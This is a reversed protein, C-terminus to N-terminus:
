MRSKGESTEKSRTGEVGAEDRLRTHGTNEERGEEHERSWRDKPCPRRAVWRMGAFWGGAGQGRRKVGCCSSWETGWWMHVHESATKGTVRVSVCVRGPRSNKTQKASRQRVTRGVSGLALLHRM